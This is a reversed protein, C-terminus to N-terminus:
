ASSGFIRLIFILLHNNKVRHRMALKGTKLNIFELRLHNNENLIRM